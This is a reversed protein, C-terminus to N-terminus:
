RHTKVREASEMFFYEYIDDLINQHATELAITKGTSTYVVRNQSDVRIEERVVYVDM